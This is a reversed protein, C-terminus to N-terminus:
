KDIEPCKSLKSVDTGVQAGTKSSSGNFKEEKKKYQYAGRRGAIELAIKRASKDYCPCVILKGTQVNTGIYGRGFCKRCSNKAKAHTYIEKMEEETFEDACKNTVVIDAM